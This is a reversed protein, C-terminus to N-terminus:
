FFLLFCIRWLCTFLFFSCFFSVFSRPIKYPLDLLAILILSSSLFCVCNTFFRGIVGALFFFCPFFCLFCFSSSVFVVFFFSILLCRLFFRVICCCMVGVLLELFLLCTCHYTSCGVFTFTQHLFAWFILLNSM